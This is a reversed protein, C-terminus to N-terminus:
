DYLKVTLEQNELQFFINQLHHLHQIFIPKHAYFMYRGDPQRELKFRKVKSHRFEDPLEEYFGAYLLLSNNLQVESLDSIFATVTRNQFRLRVLKNDIFRIFVGKVGDWSLINGSVIKQADFADM